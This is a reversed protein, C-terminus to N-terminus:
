KAKIIRIYFKIKDILADTDMKEDLLLDFDFIPYNEKHIGIKFFAKSTLVVAIERYRLRPILDILLDVSDSEIQNHQKENLKGLISFSKPTITLHQKAAQNKESIEILQVYKGATELFSKFRLVPESDSSLYLLQIKRVEDFDLFGARDRKKKLLQQIRMRLICRKM